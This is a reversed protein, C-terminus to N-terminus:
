AAERGRHTEAELLGLVPEVSAAAAGATSFAGVAERWHQERAAALAIQAHRITASMAVWAARTVGELYADRVPGAPLSEALMLEEGLDGTM